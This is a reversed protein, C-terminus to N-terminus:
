LPWTACCMEWTLACWAAFASGSLSPVSRHVAHPARARGLVIRCCMAVATDAMGDCLSARSSVVRRYAKSGEPGTM